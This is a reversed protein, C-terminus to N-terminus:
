HATQKLYFLGKAPLILLGAWPATSAKLSGIATTFLLVSLLIFPWQLRLYWLSSPPSIIGYFKIKISFILFIYIYIVSEM